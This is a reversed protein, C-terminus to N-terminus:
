PEVPFAICKGHYVTNPNEEWYGPPLELVRFSTYPIGYLTDRTLNLAPDTWQQTAFPNNSLDEMYIKFSGSDDVSIMGYQQLARAIIKGTRDLGWKDFDKETLSPDLQLRAGEPIAYPLKSEGDTKSAPFVCKDETPETYGFAIAHEIRGQLIEWPRILGAYSPIGSGRSNNVDPAGDWTINYISGSGTIWGSEVRQARWLDYEVFTDKDIIIMRGDSDQSPQANVPVPVNQLYDTRIGGGATAVACLYTVCQIDFIPTNADAFYVPYNYSDPTIIKGQNSLVLNAIMEDSYRDYVPSSDIATNWISDKSYPIQMEIPAPPTVPTLTPVITPTFVPKTQTPTFLIEPTPEINQPTCSASTVFV